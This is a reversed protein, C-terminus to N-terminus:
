KKGWIIKKFKLKKLWGIMLYTCQIGHGLCDSSYSSWMDNYSNNEAELVKISKDISGYQEVYKASRVDVLYNAESKNMEM